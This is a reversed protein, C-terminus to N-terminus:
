QGGGNTTTGHTLQRAKAFIKAKSAKARARAANTMAQATAPSAIRFYPGLGLFTVKDTLNAHEVFGEPLVIRGASDLTLKRSDGFSALILAEAAEPDDGAEEDAARILAAAFVDDGAELFAGEGKWVRIHDSAAAAGAKLGARFDAPITVRRKEDLGADFTSVFRL